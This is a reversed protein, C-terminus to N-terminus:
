RAPIALASSAAGLALGLALFALVLVLALGILWRRTAGIQVVVTGAVLDHLAQRRATFPQMLYGLFLPLLSLYRGAWRGTARLFSIREEGEATVVQLRLARKGPSARRPGSESLAFYLWGIVLGAIGGAFAIWTEGPRVFGGAFGLVFGAVGALLGVVVGDLVAAAFRAWFGGYATPAGLRETVDAVRAGPPAYPSDAPDAPPRIEALALEQSSTLITRRLQTFTEEVTAGERLGEAWLVDSGRLAGSEYGRLIEDEAFPGIREGDRVVWIEDM